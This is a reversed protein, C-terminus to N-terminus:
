WDDPTVIIDDHGCFPCRNVSMKKTKFATYCKTCQATNQRSETEEFMNPAKRTDRSVFLPEVMTADKMANKPEM